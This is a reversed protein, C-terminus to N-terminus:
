KGGHIYSDAAMLDRAKQITITLTGLSEGKKSKHRQIVAGGTGDEVANEEPDEFPINNERLLDYISELNESNILRTKSVDIEIPHTEDWTVLMKTITEALWGEGAIPIGLTTFVVSLDFKASLKKDFWLWVYGTNFGIKCYLNGRVDLSKVQGAVNPKLANRSKLMIQAGPTGRIIVQAVLM